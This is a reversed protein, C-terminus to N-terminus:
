EVPAGAEIWTAVLAPLRPDFPAGLPMRAGDIGGDGRVKLYLYSEDPAGPRVRLLEPRETSPVDIVDGGDRALNMTLGGAARAHCNTDNGVGACTGGMIRKVRSAPTADIDDLPDVFGFDAADGDAGADVPANTDKNCAVCALAAALIAALPARKPKSRDHV